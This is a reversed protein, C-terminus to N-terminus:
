SFGALLPVIAGGFKSRTATLGDFGLATRDGLTKLHDRCNKEVGVDLKRLDLYRPWRGPPLVVALRLM